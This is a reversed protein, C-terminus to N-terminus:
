YGHQSWSNFYQGHFNEWQNIDIQNGAGGEGSNSGFNGISQEDNGSCNTRSGQAVYCHFLIWGDVWNDGFAYGWSTVSWYFSTSHYTVIVGNWCYYTSAKFTYVVNGLESRSMGLWGTACPNGNLARAAQVGRRGVVGRRDVVVRARGEMARPRSGGRARRPRRPRHVGRTLVTTQAGHVTTITQPIGVALPATSASAPVAALVLAALAAVVPAALWSVFQRRKM